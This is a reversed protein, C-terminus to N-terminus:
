IWRDKMIKEKIIEMVSFGFKELSGFFNIWSNKDRINFKTRYIIKYTQDRIEIKIIDGSRYFNNERGM